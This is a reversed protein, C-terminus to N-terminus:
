RTMACYLIILILLMPILVSLLRKQFSILFELVALATESESIRKWLYYDPPNIKCVGDRHSNLDHTLNHEKCFECNDGTGETTATM